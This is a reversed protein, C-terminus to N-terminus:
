AAVAQLDGPVRDGGIYDAVPMTSVIYQVGDVVVMTKSTTPGVESVPEVFAILGDPHEDHFAMFNRERVTARRKAVLQYYRGGVQYVDGAVPIVPAQMAMALATMRMRKRDGVAEPERASLAPQEFIAAIEAAPAPAPAPDPEPVVLPESLAADVMEDGVVDRLREVQASQVEEMKALDEALKRRRDDSLPKDLADRVADMARARGALESVTAATLEQPDDLQEPIEVPREISPQLDAGLDPMVAEMKRRYKEFATTAPDLDDLRGDIFRALQSAIDVGSAMAALGDSSFEGEIALSAEMKQAMLSLAAEQVSKSEQGRYVVYDVECAENQGLRWARRSAQRLRYTNDGPFAYVISPFAFLDLGTQVLAPNSIIVDVKPAMQEIWEERDEPNPGGQAEARLVAARIGFGALYDRLYEMWDWAPAGEGSLETFIWTKRGRLKNRHVLRRVRREKPFERKPLSFVDFARVPLFDDDRDWVTYPLVWPKDPWRLFCARASSWARCPKHRERHEAFAQQMAAMAADQDPDMRVIHVKEDFKPLHSHMEMLRIFVASDLLFNVFMVPSVGPLSKTRTSTKKGRGLVLDSHCQNDDKTVYRSIKQLVGYTKVFREFGGEDYKQGDKVLRQGSTRWLLYLLNEAYGGILTGTMLVRMKSLNCLDAFMQGQLTGDGKLEHVEDAIYLDFRVGRRRLFDCPAVRRPSIGPCPIIKDAFASPRGNYAQWLPEGCLVDDDGRKLVEGSTVGRILVVQGTKDCIRPEIRIRATCLQKAKLKGRRDVFHGLSAPIDKEDKITSGCKPCRFIHVRSNVLEGDSDEFAVMREHVNVGASWAYGLKGKDRPLIFVETQTPRLWRKSKQITKSGDSHTIEKTIVESRRTLEVVDKYSRAIVVRADPMIQEMHRKWKRALQNPATLVVRLPRKSKDALARVLWAGMPTKGTGMEGNLWVSRRRRIKRDSMGTFARIMAEEAVAQAPYPRIPCSALARVEPSLRDVEPDFLPKLSKNVRAAMDGAFTGLYKDLSSFVDPATTL